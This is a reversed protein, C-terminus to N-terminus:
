FNNVEKETWTWGLYFLHINYNLLMIISNARLVKTTKEFPKQFPKKLFHTM